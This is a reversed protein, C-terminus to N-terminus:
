HVISHFRELTNGAVLGERLPRVKSAVDSPDVESLPLASIATFTEISPFGQLEMEFAVVFSFSALFSDAWFLAELTVNTRLLERLLSVELHM